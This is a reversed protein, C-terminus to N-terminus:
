ERADSQSSDGGQGSAAADSGDAADGDGDSPRLRLVVAARQLAENGPEAALLRVWRLLLDAGGSSSAIALSLVTCDPLEHESPARALEGDPQDEDGRDGDGDDDDACRLRRWWTFDEEMLRPRLKQPTEAAAAATAEKRAAIERALPTPDASLAYYSLRHEGFWVWNPGDLYVHAGAAMDTLLQQQAPAQASAVFLDSGPPGDMSYTTVRTEPDPCMRRLARVALDRFSEPAPLYQLGSSTLRVAPWPDAHRLKPMWYMMRQFKTMVYSETGFIRSIQLGMDTDPMVGHENMTDLLAIATDQQRPYHRFESQWMTRVRMVEKPFVDLLAKYSQLDKHVGLEQLRSRMAEIFEVHGRRTRGYRQMYLFISDHFEQRRREKDALVEPSFAAEPQRLRAPAPAAVAAQRTLDELRRRRELQRREEVKRERDTARVSIISQLFPRRCSTSVPCAQLLQRPQLVAASAALAVSPSPPPPRSRK